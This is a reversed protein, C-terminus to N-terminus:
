IPSLKPSSRTLEWGADDFRGCGTEQARSNGGRGDQGPVVRQFLTDLAASFLGPDTTLRVSLSGFSLLVARPPGTETM